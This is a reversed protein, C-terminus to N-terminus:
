QITNRRYNIFDSVDKHTKCMQMEKTIQRNIDKSLFFWKTRHYQTGWHLLYTLLSQLMISYTEAKSLTTKLM